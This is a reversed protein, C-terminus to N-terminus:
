RKFTVMRAELPVCLGRTLSRSSKENSGYIGSESLLLTKDTVFRAWSGALSRSQGSGVSGIEHSKRFLGTWCRFPNGIGM